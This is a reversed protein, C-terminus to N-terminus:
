LAEANDPSVPAFRKTPQDANAVEKARKYPTPYGNKRERPFMEVPKPMPRAARGRLATHLGDWLTGDTHDRPDPDVVVVGIIPIHRDALQRAVTHLWETNAYGARVVLITEEGLFELETWSTGPEVSGVGIRREHGSLPVDGPDLVRIQGEGALARLDAKPLDDVLSVPRKAALERAMDVALAATVERAGLDLLSVQGGPQRVARVLTTAVRQRRAAARSRRLFRPPEPLQAIVSAGLHRSIERRLVPRDKIVSTVAALGLGALLGLAFGIGADTALTKLFSRPLIRPADVIQTGAAVKPTGIGAEQARGDYDSIKSNLEARRAYLRELQAPNANRNKAEEAVIAAEIPTLENQAQNRQDLLAKQQAAAAAQNRAIYETIFADSIAQARALAEDKSKAKVTLQLVNNTLGLGEYDKLFEEPAQTSNLKKLAETAIKTTQLVAVDTRMLTGSDTPSDDPHIVLIQAVATPPSPLFVAVLGGLILGLLATAVWLRRRRRISVVLRQLDILPESEANEASTM